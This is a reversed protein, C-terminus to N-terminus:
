CNCVCFPLRFADVRMLLDAHQVNVDCVFAFLFGPIVVLPVPHLFQRPLEFVLLNRIVEVRVPSRKYLFVEPTTKTQDDAFYEIFFIFQVYEPM